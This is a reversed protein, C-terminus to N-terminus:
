SSPEEEPPVDQGSVRREGVPTSYTQDDPAGRRAPLLQGRGSVARHFADLRVDSHAAFWDELVARLEDIRGSSSPARALDDEEGPDNRLDFLETPLDGSRVVLKTDPTRVMRTGGYEDFVM